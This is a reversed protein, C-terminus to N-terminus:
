QLIFRKSLKPAFGVAMNLTDGPLFLKLGPSFKQKVIPAARTIIIDYILIM